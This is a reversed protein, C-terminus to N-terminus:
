PAAAEDIWARLATTATEWESRIRAAAAATDPDDISGSRAALELSRATAAVTTAGLTASSSKLTHAPRVLADADGAAVAAEIADVLTASDTVYAEVLERVFGSDGQVSARLERLVGDDVM